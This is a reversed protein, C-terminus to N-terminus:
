NKGERGWILQKFFDIRSSEKLRLDVLSSIARQDARVGQMKYAFERVAAGDLELNNECNQIQLVFEFNEPSLDTDFYPLVVPIGYAMAERIKLPSAEEMKQRHMALTGFVVDAQALVEKTQAPSLFGHMRVNPPVPEPMDQERYGVVEISLDPFTAAFKLLKDVGHWTYGPTGVFVLVPRQNQPAPLVQFNDLSIGNSIVRQPKKFQQNARGIEHSVPILGAARRLTIGRTLRNITYFFLGRHRYEREDLTNLEVVTPAISFLRQLPYTFLGYRLYIVDPAYGKVMEILRNLQFSRSIERSPFRLPGTKQSPVFKFVQAMPHFFDDPSLLFLIEEHGMEKWIQMQSIIKRGVGGHMIKNELHLAVYAIRM